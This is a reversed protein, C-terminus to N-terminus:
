HNKIWIASRWLPSILSRLQIFFHTYIIGAPSTAHYIQWFVVDLKVDSFWIQCFTADFWLYGMCCSNNSTRKEHGMIHKPSQKYLQLYLALWRIDNAVYRVYYVYVHCTFFTDSFFLVVPIMSIFSVHFLGIVYNNLSWCIIIEGM